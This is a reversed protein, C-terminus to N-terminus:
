LAATRAMLELQCANRYPENSLAPTIVTSLGGSASHTWASETLIKPKWESLM